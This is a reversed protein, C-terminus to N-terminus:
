KGFLKDLTKDLFGDSRSGEGNRPVIKDLQGKVDKWAKDVTQNQFVANDHSYQPDSVTGAVKLPLDAWGSADAVTYRLVDTGGLNEVIGPSLHANLHLNLRGDLGVTGVPQLRIRSSDLVGTLHVVGDHMDYESQITEFDLIELEPNGLFGALRGLLPSGTSRGKLVQTWGKVLLAKLLDDPVTGHGSFTNESQMLGTLSQRSDPFLGSLLVAPKSRSVAVRGQYILGKVGLDIDAAATLEGDALGGQLRTIRLHNDKMRLDVRVQDLALQRYIVKGVAITGQMDLPLVFPGVELVATQRTQEEPKKATDGTAMPFFKKINLADASLHFDGTVPDGSLNEAKFMLQVPQDDLNLQLNESKLQRGDYDIDGSIGAKMGAIDAQVDKLRLSFAQLLQGGNGALTIQGILQASLSVGTGTVAASFEIPFAKGPVIERAQFSFPKIVYRSPTKDGKSGDLFLVEGGSIVVENILLSLASRSAGGEAQAVTGAKTSTAVKAGLVDSFNFSDDPNRIVVIKPQVLRVQDVVVKGALLPLLQYQLEMSELALVDDMGAKQRVHLDRLSIGSLLGIKIKGITVKRQLSKEALPVLTARVKEPTVLTKVLTMLIGTLVVLVAMSLLTIKTSRSM